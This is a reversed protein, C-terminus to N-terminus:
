SWAILPWRGPLCRSRHQAHSQTGQVALEPDRCDADVGRLREIGSSDRGQACGEITMADQHEPILLQRRRRVDGEAPIEALELNVQEVLIVLVPVWLNELQGVDPRVAPGIRQMGIAARQEPM